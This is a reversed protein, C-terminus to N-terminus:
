QRMRARTVTLITDTLLNITFFNVNEKSSAKKSRRDSTHLSRLIKEKYSAREGATVSDGEELGRPRTSKSSIVFLKRPILRPSTWNFFRDKWAAGSMYAADVRWSASSLILCCSTSLQEKNQLFGLAVRLSNCRIGATVVLEARCLKERSSSSSSEFGNRVEEGNIASFVFTPDVTVWFGATNWFRSDILSITTWNCSIWGPVNRHKLTRLQSYFM